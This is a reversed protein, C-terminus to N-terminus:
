EMIAGAIAAPAPGFFVDGATVRRTRGDALALMMAGDADLAEFRGQLTEGPLRVTVAEGPGRAFRLWQARVPAFGQRSWREHWALLTAALGQLLVTATV